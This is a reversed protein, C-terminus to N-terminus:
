VHARGIQFSFVVDAPTIPKGDNFRANPRLGFTVSSYDDPRSVWEAILGYETSPEDPSGTMLQDYILDLQDAPQGNITFNNLSDFAGEAWQRVMGGKPANPNVWDFNEFNAAFKPEGVLSLAHHRKGQVDALAPRRVIRPIFPALAAVATGGLLKQLLERRTLITEVFRSPRVARM